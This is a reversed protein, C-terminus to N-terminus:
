KKKARKEELKRLMRERQKAQKLNRDLQSQMANLNVKSGAGSAPGGGGGGGPMRGHGSMQALLNQINNMGPMDKMKRLIEGAEEILESEKLDGSKLKTDLKKGVNNVLGILKTPNKFLNEFVDNVTSDENLNLNLDSATEEAIEKALKGLTGDLMGTLHSHLNDADPMEELNIQEEFFSGMNDMTEKLKSHLENENIAEFLKATDGFSKDNKLKGVIHFMILQLYKWIIEKTKESVDDGWLNKFEIGPLFETNITDDKFIDENQYLIDFFREPIVGKLHEFVKEQNEKTSECKMIKMLDTDMNVGYEPFTRLIDELFDKLIKNLEEM